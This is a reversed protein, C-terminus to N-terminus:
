LKSFKFIVLKVMLFILIKCNSFNNFQAFLKHIICVVFEFIFIDFLEDKKIEINTIKFNRFIPREVNRRELNQGGGM